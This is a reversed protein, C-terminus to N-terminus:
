KRDSRRIKRNDWTILKDVPTLCIIASESAYHRVTAAPLERRAGPGRGSYKLDREERVRACLQEDAVESAVAAFSVATLESWREGTEVLFGARHDRRLRAVKKSSAPTRFYVARDLVVFWVPLSVPFGDTRM